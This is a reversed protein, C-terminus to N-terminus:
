LAKLERLCRLDGIPDFARQALYVGVDDLRGLAPLFLDVALETVNLDVDVGIGGLGLFLDLLDLFAAVAGVDLDVDVLCRQGL